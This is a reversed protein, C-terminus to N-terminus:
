KWFLELSLLPHSSQNSHLFFSSKTFVSDTLNEARLELFFSHHLNKKIKFTREAIEIEYKQQDLECLYRSPSEQTCHTSLSLKPALILRILGRMERIFDQSISSPLHGRIRTEFAAREQEPGKAQSLDGLIMVEEGHLPIAVALIWDKNEQLLAEYSFLYQHQDIGLRGRGEGEIQVGAMLDKLEITQLSVRERFLSCAALSSLVCFIIFRSLM